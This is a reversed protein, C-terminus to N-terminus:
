ETKLIKYLTEYLKITEDADIKICGAVKAPIEVTKEKLALVGETLFGSVWREDGCLFAIAFLDNM